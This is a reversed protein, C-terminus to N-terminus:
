IKELLFSNQNMLANFFKKFVKANMVVKRYKIIRKNENILIVSQMKNKTKINRFFKIIIFFSHNIQQFYFHESIKQAQILTSLNNPSKVFIGFKDKIIIKRDKLHFSFDNIQLFLAYILCDDFLKQVCTFSVKL